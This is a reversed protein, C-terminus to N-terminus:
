YTQHQVEKAQGLGMQLQPEAKCWNSRPTHDDGKWDCSLLWPSSVNRVPLGPATALLVPSPQQTSLWSMGLLVHELFAIEIPSDM